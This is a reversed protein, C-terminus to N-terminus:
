AAIADDCEAGHRAVAATHASEAHDARHPRAGQDFAARRGHHVHRIGEQAGDVQPVLHFRRHEHRTSRAGVSDHVWRVGGCLLPHLHQALSSCSWTADFFDGSSIDVELMNAQGSACGTCAYVPRSRAGRRDGSQRRHDGDVQAGPQVCIGPQFRWINARRLPVSLHHPTATGVNPRYTPYRPEDPQLLPPNARGGAGDLGMPGIRRQPPVGSAFMERSLGLWHTRGSEQGWMCGGGARWACRWQMTPILQSGYTGHISPQHEGCLFRGSVDMAYAPTLLLPTAADPDHRVDFMPWWAFPWAGRIEVRAYGYTTVLCALIALAVILGRLWAVAMSRGLASLGIAVLGALMVHSSTTMYYPTINRITAVTLAVLLTAGIAFLTMSRTRADRLAQILGIAGAIGGAAVVCAALEATRASWGMMPDFLYRTGGYAIALLLDPLHLPSGTLSPDALYTGSNHVDRFGRLADAVVFPALPLVALLAALAWDRWNM